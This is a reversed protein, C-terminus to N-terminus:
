SFERLKDWTTCHVCLCLNERLQFEIAVFGMADRKESSDRQMLGSSHPAIVFERGASCCWLLHATDSEWIAINFVSPLMDPFTGSAYRFLLFLLSTLILYTREKKRIYAHRHDSLFVFLYRKTKKKKLLFCDAQISVSFALTLYSFYTFPQYCLTGTKDAGPIQHQTDHLRM